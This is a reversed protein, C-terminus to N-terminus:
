DDKTKARLKLESEVQALLKIVLCRHRINAGEYRWLRSAADSSPIAERDLRMKKVPLELAEIELKKMRLEQASTELSALLDDFPINWSGGLHRSLWWRSDSSINGYKAENQIEKVKYLLYKLGRFSQFLTNPAGDSELEIHTIELATLDERETTRTANTIEGREYRLARASKWYTIALEELLLDRVVRLRKSDDRLDTLLADFETKDEKADGSTVILNRALLGHKLANQSVTKKGAATRPGTSLRSNERNAAIKRLSASQKPTPKALDPLEGETSKPRIM